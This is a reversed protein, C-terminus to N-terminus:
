RAHDDGQPAPSNLLATAAADGTVCHEDLAGDARRQVVTYSLSSPDVRQAIAGSRASLSRTQMRQMLANSSATPAAARAASMAPADRLEDHEPMRPRGTASDIVIQQAPLDAASQALAVHMPLLGACWPALRLLRRFSPRM